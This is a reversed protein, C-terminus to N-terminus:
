TSTSPAGIWHYTVMMDGSRYTRGIIKSRVLTSIVSEFTEITMEKTLQSILTSEMITQEREIISSVTDIEVTVSSRGVAVFAKGMEREAEEIFQISKKLHEETVLMENSLSAAILM